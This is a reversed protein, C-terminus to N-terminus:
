KTNKADLLPLISKIKILDFGGNYVVKGEPDIIVITPYFTIGYKTAVQKANFLIDYDMLPQKKVFNKIEEPDDIPNISLIKIRKPDFEKNFSHLIPISQICPGCNIIWFDLLVYQNSFKKQSVTDRIDRINPLRFEITPFSSKFLTRGFIPGTIHRYKNYTLISLVNRKNDDYGCNEKINSFTTIIGDGSEYNIQKIQVPILSLKDVLVSYNM